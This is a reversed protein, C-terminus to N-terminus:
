RSVRINQVNKELIFTQNLRPEQLDSDKKIVQIRVIQPVNRADLQILGSQVTLEQEGRTLMGIVKGNQLIRVPAAPSARLTLKWTQKINPQEINIELPQAEVKQAMAMYFDVPDKALGLALQAVALTVAALIMVRILLSELNELLRKWLAFWNRRM